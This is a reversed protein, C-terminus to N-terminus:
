PTVNRLGLRRAGSMLYYTAKFAALPLGFGPREYLFHGALVSILGDRMRLMNRPRLFMARMVPDNIRRILWSLEDMSTGLRKEMRRARARGARPDRLWSDAVEAGMEASAMALLVGSSFVPDLFGFADGVMM